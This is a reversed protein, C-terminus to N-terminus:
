LTSREEGDADLEQATISYLGDLLAKEDSLTLQWAGDEDVPTAGLFTSEATSDETSEAFLEIRSGPRAVGFFQPTRDQTVADRDSRGTDSSTDLRLASTPESDPNIEPPELEEDVVSLDDDAPLPQDSKSILGDSAPDEDAPDTESQEDDESISTDDSTSGDPDDNTLDEDVAVVTNDDPEEDANSLSKDSEESVSDDTSSVDLSFMSVLAGDGSAAGGEDSSDVPAPPEVTLAVVVDLHSSNGAVDTAVVKFHLQEPIAILEETTLRVEGLTSDISLGDLSSGESSELSYVVESLDTSTATYILFSTPPLEDVSAATIGGGSSTDALIASRFRADWGAFLANASNKWGTKASVTGDANVDLRRFLSSKQGQKRLLVQFGDGVDVAQIADWRKSSKDTLAKGAVNRLTVPGDSSAMRYGEGGDLFGDGNADKELGVIGDVRIVDGFRDEWSKKLAWDVPRWNTRGNIRGASNVDLVRFLGRSRQKGKVLVEYGNAGSIARIPKWTKTSEGSFLRGKWNTLALGGGDTALTFVDTKDVFGDADRDIGFRTKKGGPSM